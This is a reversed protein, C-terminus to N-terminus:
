PTELLTRIAPAYPPRLVGRETVIAGIFENPTVDFAPAFVRVGSAAVRKGAFHTVEGADREEIVIQDGEATGPDFTSIPAAVYLPVGHRAALVALPYTGVKNAVDGNAAIRDAGVIVAGIGGRRLVSAAAGDTILVVELGARVLEWATLRAGQLLPRTEDVFVRDIKGQAAATTIVGLATGIGATALAGANCHTLVATRPGLLRAGHEGIRRCAEVDEDHIAVAERTLADIPIGDGPATELLARMRGLATFLNVATPRTSALHDIAALLATRGARAAEIDRAALVV